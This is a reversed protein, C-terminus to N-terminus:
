VFVCVTRPISCENRRVWDVWVWGVEEEEDVNFDPLLADPPREAMAFGPAGRLQQLQELVATKIREM